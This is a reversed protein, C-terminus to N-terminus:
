SRLYLERSQRCREDEGERYVTLATSVGAIATRAQSLEAKVALLEALQSELQATQSELRKNQEQLLVEKSHIEQTLQDMAQQHMLAQQDIHQQYSAETQSKEGQLSKLEHQTKVLSLKQQTNQRTLAKIEVRLAHSAAALDNLQLELEAVRDRLMKTYLESFRDMQALRPLHEMHTMSEIWLTALRGKMSLISTPVARKDRLMVESPATTRYYEPTSSHPQSTEAASGSPASPPARSPGLQSTVPPPRSSTGAETSRPPQSTSPEGQSPRAPVEPPTPADYINPNPIAAAVSPSPQPTFSPDSVPAM